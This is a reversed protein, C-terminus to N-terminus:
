SSSCPPTPACVMSSPSPWSGQSGDCILHLPVVVTTAVFSMQVNGRMYWSVDRRPACTFPTVPDERGVEQIAWRWTVHRHCQPGLQLPKVLSSELERKAKNKISTNVKMAKLDQQTVVLIWALTHKALTENKNKLVKIKTHLKALSM